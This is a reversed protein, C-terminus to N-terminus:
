TVTYLILLTYAAGIFMGIIIGALFGGVLYHAEEPTSLFEELLKSIDM